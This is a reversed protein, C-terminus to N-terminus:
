ATEGLKRRSDNRLRHRFQWSGAVVGRKMARLTGGRNIFKESTIIRGAALKLRGRSGSSISKLIELNSRRIISTSDLSFIIKFSIFSKKISKAIYLTYRLFPPFKYKHIFTSLLISSNHFITLNKFNFLLQTLRFKGNM